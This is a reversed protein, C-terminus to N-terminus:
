NELTKLVLNYLEEAPLGQRTNEEIWAAAAPAAVAEDITALIKEDFTLEIIGREQLAPYWAAM